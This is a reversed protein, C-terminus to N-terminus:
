QCVMKAQNFSAMTKEKVGPEFRGYSVAYADTNEGAKGPSGTITVELTGGANFFTDQSRGYNFSHYKKFGQLHAAYWAVTADVKADYVSYFNGQFKSKCVTSDPMKTPENGLNRPANTAPDLPLGTLPDTTLSKPRGGLMPALCLGLSVILTVMLTKKQQTNM